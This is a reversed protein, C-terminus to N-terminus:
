TNCTTPPIYSLRKGKLDEALAKSNSYSGEWCARIIHCLSGLATIDPFEKNQYRIRTEVESLSSYQREGAILEYMASGFAFIDAQTSLLDGPYEHSVTVSVLLPASDISSDAFDALKLNLKDDLFMNATTLDGHIIGADHIFALTDALQIMWRLRLSPDLSNEGQLFSRLDHKSAYGLRLGGGDVSGYYPLLGEHGGLETLREYILRERDISARFENDFPTKIVTQTAADLVILGSSGWAVVDKLGFGPPYQIEDLSM